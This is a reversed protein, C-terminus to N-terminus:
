PAEPVVQVGLVAVDSLTSASKTPPVSNNEDSTPYLTHTTDFVALFDKM